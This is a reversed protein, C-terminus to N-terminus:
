PPQLLHLPRRLHLRLCSSTSSVRISPFFFAARLAPGILIGIPQQALIQGLPRIQRAVGLALQIRDGMAEIGLRSFTEVPGRRQPHERLQTMM